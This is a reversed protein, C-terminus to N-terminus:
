ASIEAGSSNLCVKRQRLFGNPLTSKFFPANTLAQVQEQITMTKM